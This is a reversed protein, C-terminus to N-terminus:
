RTCTCIGTNFVTNCSCTVPTGYMNSCGPEQEATCRTPNLNDHAELCNGFGCLSNCSTSDSSGNDFAFTCSNATASCLLYNRAPSSYLTACATVAADAIWGDPAVFSDLTTDPSLTDITSDPALADVTTDYDVADPRALDVGRDVLEVDAAGDKRLGDAAGDKFHVGSAEADAKALGAPGATDFSCAEALGALVFIATPVFSSRRM